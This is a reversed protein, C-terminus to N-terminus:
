GMYVALTYLYIQLAILGRKKNSWNQPNEPDDTTYWDVLVIGDRTREPVIIRSPQHDLSERQAANSYAEELDVRSRVKNMDPRTSIRSLTRANISETAALLDFPDMDKVTTPTTVSRSAPTAPRDLKESINPLGGPPPTITDSELRKTEQYVPPCIFGPKEEPYQFMRDKTIWRMIQGVPADRFLDSM